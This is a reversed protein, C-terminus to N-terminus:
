EYRCWYPGPILIGEGPDCFNYFLADLCSSAGPATAIHSPAVPISPNFHTNLFTSLVGLVAPDGAFGRPYSLHQTAPLLRSLQRAQSNVESELGKAAAQQSLLLLEPRLLFNEATSLDIASSVKKTQEDIIHQIKPIIFELNQATRRSFEKFKANAM